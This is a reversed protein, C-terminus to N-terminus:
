SKIQPVFDPCLKQIAFVSKSLTTEFGEPLDKALDHSREAVFTIRLMNQSSGRFGRPIRGVELKITNEFEERNM